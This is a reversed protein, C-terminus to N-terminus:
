AEIKEGTSFLSSLQFRNQRLWQLLEPFALAVPPLSKLGWSARRAFHAITSWRRGMTSLVRHPEPTAMTVLFGLARASVIVLFRGVPVRPGECGKALREAEGWHKRPTIQSFPPREPERKWIRREPISEFTLFGAGPLWLPGAPASSAPTSNESAAGPLTATEM